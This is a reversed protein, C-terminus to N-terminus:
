KTPYNLKIMANQLRNLVLFPLVLFICMGLLNVWCEGVGSDLMAWKVYVLYYQRIPFIQAFGQMPPIMMEVPFTMGSMSIGLVSYLSAASLADRLVPFLGIFFIGVAHSSLVLLTVTILMTWFPGMIPYGIIKYALVEFSFGLVLYILCYPLLKGVLANIISGGATELLEPTTKMKLEFGITFVTMVIICLSLIGPWLISILYIAYSSYPNCISHTDITIPQLQAMIQTEDTGKARLTERRVGANLVNAMTFFNRYALTGPVMYAETYYCQLAPRLGNVADKYLGDPFEIFGYIEGKQMAEKAERFSSYRNVIEIGQLANIQKIASRSLYSNDMDVVGVPVKQPLGQYMLTLLFVASFALVLITGYLYIPRSRMIKEERRFVKLICNFMNTRNSM